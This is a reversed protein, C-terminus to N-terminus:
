EIYIDSPLWVVFDCFQLKSVQIQCQVQYCYAHTQIYVYVLVEQDTNEAASVFVPIIMSTLDRKNAQNTHATGTYVSGTEGGKNQLSSIDTNIHMSTPHTKQCLRCTKKDTCSSSLHNEKLCSFCLKESRVFQRRESIPKAGFQRCSSIDHNIRCWRCTIAQTQASTQVKTTDNIGTAFTSKRENDPNPLLPRRPSSASIRKAKSVTIYPDNAYTAEKTVFNVLETFTPYHSHQHRYGSTIRNWRNFADKPLKEAMKSIEEISDLHGLGPVETMAMQCHSLFDAYRQFNKNDEDGIRRWSYLKSKFSTSITLPDGFRCKLVERARRYADESNLFFLGSVAEKASGGLYKKLHHIKENPPVDNEILMSFAREWDQYELPNGTFIPPEALPVRSARIAQALCENSSCSSCSSKQSTDRRNLHTSRFPTRSRHVSQKDFNDIRNPPFFTEAHPNLKVYERQSHSIKYKQDAENYDDFDKEESDYVKIKAKQIAIESELKTQEFRHKLEALERKLENERKEIQKQAEAEIQKRQAQTELAAVEAAAAARKSSISSSSRKSSRTRQSVSTFRDTENGIILTLKTIVDVLSQSIFECDTEMELSADLNRLEEAKSLLSDRKEKVKHRQKRCVEPDVYEDDIMKYSEDILYLIETKTKKFANRKEPIIHALYKETHKVSRKGTVMDNQTLLLPHGAGQNEDSGKLELAGAGRETTHPNFNTGKKGSEQDNTDEM